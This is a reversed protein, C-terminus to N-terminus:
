KLARLQERVVGIDGRNWEGTWGWGRENKEARILVSSSSAPPPPQSNSRSRGTAPTASSFPTDPRQHAADFEPVPALAPSKFKLDLSPGPPPGSDTSTRAQPTVPTTPRADHARTDDELAGTAIVGVSTSSAGPHAFEMPTLSEADLDGDKHALHLDDQFCEGEEEEPQDELHPDGSNFSTEGLSSASPGGYSFKLSVSGGGGESTSTRSLESFAVSANDDRYPRSTLVTTFLSRRSKLPSSSTSAESPDPFAPIPSQSTSASPTKRRLSGLKRLVTPSSLSQKAATAPPLAAAAASTSASRVLSLAADTRPPFPNPPSSSSPAPETAKGKGKAPKKDLKLLPRPPKAISTEYAVYMSPPSRPRPRPRRSNAMAMSSSSPVSETSSTTAM